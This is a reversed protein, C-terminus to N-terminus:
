QARSPKDSPNLGSRVFGWVIIMGTALQRASIRRVAPTLRKSSGRGRALVSLAMQSDVLHLCRRTRAKARIRWRIALDVAELELRNIHHQKQKVKTSLVHRGLWRRTDITVRLGKGLLIPVGLDTRVEAGKASAARVHGEALWLAAAQEQRTSPM